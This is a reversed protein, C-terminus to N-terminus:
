PNSHVGPNLNSTETSNTPSSCPADIGSGFLNIMTGAITHTDDAPAFATLIERTLDEDQSSILIQDSWLHMSEGDMNIMVCRPNNSHCGQIFYPMREKLHVEFRVTNGRHLTGKQLCFKSQSGLCLVGTEPTYNVPYIKKNGWQERGKGIGVIIRRLFEPNPAEPIPFSKWVKEKGDQKPKDVKFQLLCTKGPAYLHQILTDEFVHGTSVIRLIRTPCKIKTSGELRFCRFRSYVSDDFIHSPCNPVRKIFELCHEHTKFMILGQKIRFHVHRSFKTSDSSDLEVVDIEDENLGEVYFCIQGIIEAIFLEKDNELTEPSHPSEHEAYTYDFDLYLHCPQDPLVMEHHHRQDPSVMAYHSKFDSLTAVIYIKNNGISIDEAWVKEPERQVGLQVM